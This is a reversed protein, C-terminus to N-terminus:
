PNEQDCPAPIPQGAAAYAALTAETLDTVLATADAPDTTDDALASEVAEKAELLDAAVGRDIDTVEDALEHLPGHDFGARAAAIDGATADDRVACLSEFYEANTVGTTATAATTGAEVTPDGGASCAGVALLSVVALTTLTRHPKM